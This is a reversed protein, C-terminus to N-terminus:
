PPPPRRPADADDAVDTHAPPDAKSAIARAPLRLIWELPGIDFVKLWAWSFGVCLAIVGLLVAWHDDSAGVLIWRTILALALVQVTYATLAMRGTDVVAGLWARVRREGLAAVLWACAWTASLSLLSAGIIELTTGSYAAAGWPGLRGIAYFVAAGALLGATTLAGRWGAVTPERLLLPLAAMGIACIAIFSSVRYHSGAAALDLSQVLWPNATGRGLWQRTADMVMPSVLAMVLGLGAWVAPRNGVLAVIPALVIILLGLTQLVIDIQWYLLQLWEGLLILLVGRAVNGFVFVVWGASKQWALLLSLGILMAFWPATVYESANLIGGWPSTHAVIMSIVALGRALDLWALRATM